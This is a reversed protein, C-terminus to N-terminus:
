KSTRGSWTPTLAIIAALQADTWPPKTEGHYPKAFGRALMWASLRGEATAPQNTILDGLARGAYKDLGHYELWLAKMGWHLFWAQLAKSAVLAAPNQRPDVLEPTDIGDIRLSTEYDQVLGAHRFIAPTPDCSVAITDGDVLRLSRLPYAVPVAEPIATLHLM